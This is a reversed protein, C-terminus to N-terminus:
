GILTQGASSVFEIAITVNISELLPDTVSVEEGSQVLVSLAQDLNAKTAQQLAPPKQMYLTKGSASVLSPASLRLPGEKLQQILENLTLTKSVKLKQVTSTCVPCDEKQEYPFTLSHVGQSGMYM